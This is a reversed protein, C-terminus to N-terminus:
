EPGLKGGQSKHVSGLTSRAPIGLQIVELSVQSPVFVESLDMPWVLQKKGTKWYLYSAPILILSVLTM